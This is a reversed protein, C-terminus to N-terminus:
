NRILSPLVEQLIKNIEVAKSLVMLHRGNVITHSANTYRIPLL